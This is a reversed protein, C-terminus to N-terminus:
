LRFGIGLPARARGYIVLVFVITFRFVIRLFDHRENYGGPVVPRLVLDLWRHHSQTSGVRLQRQVLPRRNDFLSVSGGSWPLRCSSQVGPQSPLYRNVFFVLGRAALAFGRLL